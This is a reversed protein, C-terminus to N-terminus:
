QPPLSCIKQSIAQPVGVTSASSYLERPLIGGDVGSHTMDEGKSIVTSEVRNGAWGTAQNGTGSPLTRSSAPSSGAAAQLQPDRAVGKAASTVRATSVM